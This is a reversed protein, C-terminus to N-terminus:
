RSAGQGSGSGHGMGNGNGRPRVLWASLLLAIGIMEPLIGIAWSNGHEESILFLIMIGIGAALTVIGGILLGQHLRRAREIPSLWPSNMYPDGGAAAPLKNPDLGREIAAIRERQALEMLRQQGVAKVIGAVIGGLIAVLPICLLLLIFVDESKHLM